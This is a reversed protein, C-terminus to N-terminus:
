SSFEFAMDSAKRFIRCFIEILIYLHTSPSSYQDPKDLSHESNQTLTQTGCDAAPPLPPQHWSRSHAGNREDSSSADPPAFRFAINGM